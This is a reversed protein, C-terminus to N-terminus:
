ANGALSPSCMMGMAIVVKVADNNKSMRAKVRMKIKKIRTSRDNLISGGCPNFGEHLMKRRWFKKKDPWKKTLKNKM